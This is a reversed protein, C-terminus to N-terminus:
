ADVDSRRPGFAKVMRNGLHIPLLQGVCYVLGLGILLGRLVWLRRQLDSQTQDLLDRANGATTRYEGLVEGADDLSARVDTMSDAVDVSQRSVTRMNDGAAEIADAQERLDGPLGNLQEQLSRLSADFPEDPDYAVGVPLEDIARLTTDVSAGVQVLAPMSRELSELSRAVENRTLRATEDLLDAGEALSGELGRSTDEADGLGAAVVAVSEAAVSLSSDVTALSESTLLLSRGLLTDFDQLLWLGVAVAVIGSVLGVVGVTRMLRGIRRLGPDRLDLVTTIRPTGDPHEM